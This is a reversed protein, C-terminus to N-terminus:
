QLMKHLLAVFGARSAASSRKPPTVRREGTFPKHRHWSNDSRKFALLTEEVPPVEFVVDNLNNESRHLRLRGGADEWISNMYLLVTIIKTKSDSHIKGDKVSCRGRVTIM